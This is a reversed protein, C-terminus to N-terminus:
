AMNGISDFVDKAANVAMRLMANECVMNKVRNADDKHTRAYATSITLISVSDLRNDHVAMSVFYDYDEPTWDKIENELREHGQDTMATLLEKADDIVEDIVKQQEKAAKQLAETDHKHLEVVKNYKDM